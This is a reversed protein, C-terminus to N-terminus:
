KLIQIGYKFFPKLMPVEFKIIYLYTVLTHTHTHTHAHAHTHAYGYGRQM